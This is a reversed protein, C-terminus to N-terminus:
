PGTLSIKRLTMQVIVQKNRIQTANKPLIFLIDSLYTRYKPLELCLDHALPSCKERKSERTLQM